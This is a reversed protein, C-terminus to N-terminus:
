RSPGSGDLTLSTVSPTAGHRAGGGSLGWNQTHTPTDQSERQPRFGGCKGKEDSRDEERPWGGVLGATVAAATQCRARPGQPLLLRGRWAPFVLPLLFAGIARHTDQKYMFIEWRHCTPAARGEGEGQM